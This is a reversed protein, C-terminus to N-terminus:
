PWRHHDSPQKPAPRALAADATRESGSADILLLSVTPDTVHAAVSEWPLLVDAFGMSRDFTAVVVPDVQTGDGLRVDARQGVTAGLRDAADQSLAVQGPRLEALSGQVVGLDLVDDLSGPRSRRRPM